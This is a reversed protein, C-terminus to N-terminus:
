FPLTQTGRRRTPVLFFTTMISTPKKPHPGAARLTEVQALTLGTAQAIQTDSLAGLQLLNRARARM